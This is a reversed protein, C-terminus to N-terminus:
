GEVMVKYLSTGAALVLFVIAWIIPIWKAYVMLAAIIFSVWSSALIADTFDYRKLQMIAIFFVALLLFVGLMHNTTDNAFTVLHVVSTANTLGTLNYTM